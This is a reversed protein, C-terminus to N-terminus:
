LFRFHRDFFIPVIALNFAIVTTNACINEFDAVAYKKLYTRRSGYLIHRPKFLRTFASGTLCEALQGRRNNHVDMM